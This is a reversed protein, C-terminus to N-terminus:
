FARFDDIVNSDERRNALAARVRDAMEDTLDEDLSPSMFHKTGRRVRQDYVRVEVSYPRRDGLILIKAFNRQAVGEAKDDDLLIFKNGKLAQYYKSKLERGNSSENKLGGPLNRIVIARISNFSLNLNSISPNSACAGVLFSTSLLVFASSIMRSM